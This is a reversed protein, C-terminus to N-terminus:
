WTAETDEKDLAGNYEIAYVGEPMDHTPIEVKEAEYPLGFAYKFKGFEDHPEFSYLIVWGKGEQVKFDRTGLLYLTEAKIDLLAGIGNFSHDDISKQVSTISVPQKLAKLFGLTDSDGTSPVVVVEKKEKGAKYDRLTVAMYHGKALIDDLISVNLGENTHVSCTELLSLCSNCNEIKECYAVRLKKAHKRKVVFKHLTSQYYQGNDLIRGLAKENDLVTTTLAQSVVGTGISPTESWEGRSAFEGVHGNHALLLGEHEFCHVNDLTDGGVTGTRTHLIGIKAGEIGKVFKNFVGDYKDQSLERVTSVSNDQGVLAIGVGDPEGSIKDWQTTLVDTLSQMDADKQKIVIALKCM